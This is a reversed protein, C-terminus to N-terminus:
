ATLSVGLVDDKWGYRLPTTRDKALLPIDAYQGFGLPQKRGMASM